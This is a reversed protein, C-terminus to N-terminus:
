LSPAVNALLIPPLVYKQELQRPPISSTFQVNIVRLFLCQKKLEIREEDVIEDEEFRGIMIAFASLAALAM